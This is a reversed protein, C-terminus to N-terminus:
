QIHHVATGSVRVCDLLHEYIYTHVTVERQLLLIKLIELTLQKVLFYNERPVHFISCFILLVALLLVKQLLKGKM